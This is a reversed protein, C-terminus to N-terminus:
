GVPEGRGTRDRLRRGVWGPLLRGLEPASRASLRVLRLHAEKRVGTAFRQKFAHDGRLLDFERFGEAKASEIALGLITRGPSLGADADFGMAYYSVTGASVFAYLLAADHRGAALRYIRAMGRQALRRAALRHFRCRAETAFVHSMGDFRRNHLRMLRGLAAEVSDPDTLVELGGGAREARRLGRGVQQRLSSRYIAPESGDLDVFPAMAEEGGIPLFRPPGLRALALALAGTAALGDFDIVEISADRALHGVIANAVTEDQGTEAVVDLHDPSLWEHGPVRVVRLRGPGPALEVPLAGLLSSGLRVTIVHIDADLGPTDAFSLLWPWSSFPNAPQRSTWWEPLDASRLPETRVSATLSMSEGKGVKL